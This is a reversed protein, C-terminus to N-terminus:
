LFPIVEKIFFWVLFAVCAYIPASLLVQILTPINPISFTLMGLVLSLANQPAFASAGIGHIVTLSGNGWADWCYQYDSSNWVFMVGTTAQPCTATYRVTGNEADDQVTAWELEYGRSAGEFSFEQTTYVPIIFFIITRYYITFVTASELSTWLHGGMSYDLASATYNTVNYMAYSDFGSILQPDITGLSPAEYTDTTFGAPMTGLLASYILLFSVVIVFGKMEAM